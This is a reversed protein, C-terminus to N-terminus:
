LRERLRELEMQHSAVKRCIWENLLLKQQPADIYFAKDGISELSRRRLEFMTLAASVSINLSEVMGVMPITFKYDIHPTWEGSVGAHENGFIVAVKERVPMHHISEAEQAPYGAAIKYGQSRLERVCEEISKWKKVCLWSAAGRAPGSPKKFAHKVNVVDCHMLGFAEASRMCASINHPDHVDQIVLRLHDTRHAAVTEMRERREDSLRAKLLDWADSPFTSTM